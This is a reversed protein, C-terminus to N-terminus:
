APEGASKLFARTLLVSVVAMWILSVMFALWGVPTASIVGLVIAVWGLWAPLLGSRRIALGAGLLFAAQGAIFMIWIGDGLASIAQAAVPDLQGINETFAGVLGALLMLGSAMVLGGGFALTATGEVEPNDRRLGSRLVAAFFILFLSGYALLIVGATQASENDSYFNLISQGGDGTDPPDGSVILAAVFMLVAVIGALPALAWGKSSNM